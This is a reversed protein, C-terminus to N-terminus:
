VTVVYVNVSAAIPEQNIQLGAFMSDLNEAALSKDHSTNKLTKVANTVATIGYKEYVSPSRVTSALLAPIRAVRSGMTAVTMPM